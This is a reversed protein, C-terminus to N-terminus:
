SAAAGKLYNKLIPFQVVLLNPLNPCWIDYTMKFLRSDYGRGKEMDYMSLGQCIAYWILDYCEISCMEM